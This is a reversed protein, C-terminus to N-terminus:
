EYAHYWASYTVKNEKSIFFYVFDHNGRWEYIWIETHNPFVYNEDQLRMEHLIVHDPQDLVKTPKGMMQEIESALRGTQGLHKQLEIMAQHREGQNDDIASNRGQNHWHGRENKLRLYTASASTLNNNSM